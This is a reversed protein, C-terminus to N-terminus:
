VETSQAKHLQCASYILIPPTHDLETTSWFVSILYWWGHASHLGCVPLRMSQRAVFSPDPGVEIEKVLVPFRKCIRFRVVKWICLGKSDGCVLKSWSIGLHWRQMRRGSDKWSNQCKRRHINQIYGLVYESMCELMHESMFESTIESMYKRIQRVNQSTNQCTNWCKKYCKRQGLHQCRNQCRNQCMNLCYREHMNDSARVHIRNQM